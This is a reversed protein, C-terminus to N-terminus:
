IKNGASTMTKEMMMRINIIMAVLPNYLSSPKMINFLNAKITKNAMGARIIAPQPPTLSCAVRFPSAFVTKLSAEIVGM